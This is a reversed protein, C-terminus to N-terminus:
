AVDVAWLRRPQSKAGSRISVTRESVLVTVVPDRVHRRTYRDAIAHLALEHERRLGNAQHGNDGLAQLRLVQRRLAEMLRGASQPGLFRSPVLPITAGSRLVADYEFVVPDGAVPSTYMEWNVFPFSRSGLAFQGALTSGVMITLAARRGRDLGGFSRRVAPHAAVPALVAGVLVGERARRSRAVRLAGRGLVGM